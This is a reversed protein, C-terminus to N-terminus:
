VSSLAQAVPLIDDYSLFPSAIIVCQSKLLVEEKEFVIGASCVVHSSAAPAWSRKVLPGITAPSRLGCVEIEECAPESAAVSGLVGEDHEFCVMEALGEGLLLVATIAPSFSSESFTVSAFIAVSGILVRMLRSLETTKIGCAATVQEVVEGAASVSM